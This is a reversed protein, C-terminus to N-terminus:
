PWHTTIYAERYTPHLLLAATYAPTYDNIAQWKDLAFRSTRIAATLVLDSAHRVISQDYHKRLFDMSMLVQDLTADDGECLKTVQQLPEMFEVLTELFQWHRHKLSTQEMNENPRRRASRMVWEFFKRLYDVAEHDAIGTGQSIKAIAESPEQSEAIVAAIAEELSASM